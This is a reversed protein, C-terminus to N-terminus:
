KLRKKEKIYEERGMGLRSAWDEPFGTYYSRPDLKRWKWILVRSISPIGIVPLYFWGLLMSQVSHGYEHKKSIETGSYRDDLIIYRGLSIGGPFCKVYTIAAHRYRERGTIRNKNFVIICAALVTQPLEWTVSIIRLFLLVIENWFHNL